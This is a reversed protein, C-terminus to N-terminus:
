AVASAGLELAPDPQFLSMSPPILAPASKKGVLGTDIIDSWEWM